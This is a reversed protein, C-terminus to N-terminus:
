ACRPGRSGDGEPALHICVALVRPPQRGPDARAREGAEGDAPEIELGGHLADGLASTYTGLRQSEREWFACEVDVARLVQGQGLADEAGAVCGGVPSM